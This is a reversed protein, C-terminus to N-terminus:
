GIWALDPKQEKFFCNVLEVLVPFPAKAKLRCTEKLSLIREVWREGKDSQSGFSRKRWIVGFRLAREARNNTPEVGQEDLFVWLSDMESALSRALKGAENDAGEHLMLLLLFRSYFNRWKREGPPAKAFHCLLQLQKLVELGFRAAEENRAESLGRAKRIYHALCSQRQNVWKQYVRYNDSVLIGQWDQILAEFAEWSRRPHVLYLAVNLSAMVWLWHLDKGQRWSTEDVFGVSENRAVQAIKEYAPRTANSVRDIVKQVAGTSIPVGLV